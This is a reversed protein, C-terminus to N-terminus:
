VQELKLAQHVMPFKQKLAVVKKEVYKLNFDM